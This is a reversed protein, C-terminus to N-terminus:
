ETFYTKINITEGNFLSKYYDVSMKTNTQIYIDLKNLINRLANLIESNRMNSMIESVIFERQKQLDIIM